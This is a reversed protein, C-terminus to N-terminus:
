EKPAQSIKLIEIISNKDSQLQQILLEKSEFKIEDRVRAVFYVSIQQNYVLQDFDFLHVELTIESLNFTPRVGINLMGKHLQDMIRVYVAYVGILPIQVNQDPLINATPFGITRGIKNGDVIIGSISYYKQYTRFYKDMDGTEIMLEVKKKDNEIM